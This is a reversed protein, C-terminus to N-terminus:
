GVELIGKNLRLQAGPPTEAEAGAAPKNGPLICAALNREFWDEYSEAVQGEYYVRDQNAAIHAHQFWGM